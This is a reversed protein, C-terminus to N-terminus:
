RIRLRARVRVTATLVKRWRALTGMGAVDEASVLRDLPRGQDLLECYQLDLKFTGRGECRLYAFGERYCIRRIDRMFAFRKPSQAPTSATATWPRAFALSISALNMDVAAVKRDLFARSPPLTIFKPKMFPLPTRIEVRLMPRVATDGAVANVAEGAMGRLSITRVLKTPALLIVTGFISVILTTGMTVATMIYAGWSGERQKGDERSEGPPPLSVVIAWNYVGVLLLGGFIYSTWAFATHSPAKYLLIPDSQTLLTAAYDPRPGSSLTPLSKPPPPPTPNAPRASPIKRSPAPRPTLVPQRPPPPPPEPPRPPQQAPPPPPPAKTPRRPAPSPTAPKTLARRTTCISPSLPTQRLIQARLCPPLRLLSYM